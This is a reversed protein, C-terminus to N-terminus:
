RPGSARAMVVRCGVARGSPPAAGGAGSSGHCGLLEALQDFLPDGRGLLSVRQIREEAQFAGGADGRRRLHGGVQAIAQGPLPALVLPGGIQAEFGQLQFRRVGDVVEVEAADIKGRPLLCGGNAGQASAELEVLAAGDDLLQLLEADALLGNEGGKGAIVGLVLVAPSEELAEAHATRGGV